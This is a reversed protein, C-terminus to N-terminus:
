EMRFTCGNEGAWSERIRMLMYWATKQTVEIDRHLKMSSLGKLSTTELYIAFVWKRLSIPSGELPTGTKVSFYKRCDRCRYPMKPHSCEHTNVSGCRPCYRGAAWVHGEFWTQATGEDPFMDVLKMLSISVRHTRGPGQKAM